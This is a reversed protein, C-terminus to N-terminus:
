CLVTQCAAEVLAVRLIGLPGRALQNFIDPGFAILKGLYIFATNSSIRAAQQMDHTVIVITFQRKLTNILEEIRATSIRDFASTPADLLFM